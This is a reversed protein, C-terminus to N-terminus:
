QYIYKLVIPFFQSMISITQIECYNIFDFLVSNFEEKKILQILSFSETEKNHCFNWKRIFQNEKHDM